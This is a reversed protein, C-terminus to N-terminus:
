WCLRMQQKPAQKKWFLAGVIPVYLGGVLIAFAMDIAVILDQIFLAAVMVLICTIAMVLRAFRLRKKDEMQKKTVAPYIDNTILTSCAIMPGSLTSMVASLVGAYILGKLGVPVTEAVMSMFATQPDALGPLVVSACIGIDIVSVSSNM